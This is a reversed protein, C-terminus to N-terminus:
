LDKLWNQAIAERVKEISRKILLRLLGVLYIPSPM